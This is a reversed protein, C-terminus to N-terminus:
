RLGNSPASPKCRKNGGHVLLVIGLLEGQVNALEDLLFELALLSGDAPEGAFEIAVTGVDVFKELSGSESSTLCQVFIRKLRDVM